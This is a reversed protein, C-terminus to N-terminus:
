LRSLFRIQDGTLKSDKTIKFAYNKFEEYEELTVYKDSRIIKFKELLDPIGIQSIIALKDIMDNASLGEVKKNVGDRSGKPYYNNIMAYNNTDIASRLDKGVKSNKFYVNADALKNYKENFENKVYNESSTSHIWTLLALIPLVGFLLGAIKKTLSNFAQHVFIPISYFVILLAVMICIIITQDYYMDIKSAMSTEQIFLMLHYPFFYLLGYGIVLCLAIGAIVSGAGFALELLFEIM